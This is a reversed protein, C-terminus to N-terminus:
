RLSHQRSMRTLAIRTADVAARLRALKFSRYEERSIEYDVHNVLFWNEGFHNGLFGYAGWGSAPQESWFASLPLRAPLGKELVGLSGTRSLRLTQEALGRQISLYDQEDALRSIRLCDDHELLGTSRPPLVDRVDYSEFGDDMGHTVGVVHAPVAMDQIHHLVVGAAHLLDSRNWFTMTGLDLLREQLKGVRVSSDYRFTFRLAGEPHFYHSYTTFKQIFALDEGLNEESLSLTTEQTLSQPGLCSRVEEAAIVTVWAHDDLGFAQAKSAPSLVGLVAACLLFGRKRSGGLGTLSRLIFRSLGV